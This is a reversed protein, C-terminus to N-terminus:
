GETTLNPVAQRSRQYRETAEKERKRSAQDKQLDENMSEIMDEPDAVRQNDEEYSMEKDEADEELQLIRAELEEYTPKRRRSHLRRSAM